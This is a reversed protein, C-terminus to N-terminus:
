WHALSFDFAAAYRVTRFASGSASAPGTTLQHATGRGIVIGTRPRVHPDPGRDRIRTESRLGRVADLITFFM